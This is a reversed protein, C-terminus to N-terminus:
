RFTPEARRVQSHLFLFARFIHKITGSKNKYEGDLINVSDGVRVPNSGFDLATARLSNSNRKGRMQEPNVQITSGAQNVVDFEERGVKVIIGVENRNREGAIAVLDFLEYGDLKAQGTSVDSSVTLQSIRVSIEKSTMDTMLFAIM